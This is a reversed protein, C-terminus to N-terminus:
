RTASRISEPEVLEAAALLAAALGRAEGADFRGLGSVRIPDADDDVVALDEIEGALVVTWVRGGPRRPAPLAVMAVVGPISLVECAIRANAAYADKILDLLRDSM